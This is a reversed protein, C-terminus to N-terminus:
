KEETWILFGDVIDVDRTVKGLLKLLPALTELKREIAALREKVELEGCISNIVHRAVASELAILREQDQQLTISPPKPKAGFGTCTPQDPVLNTGFKLEADVLKQPNLKPTKM